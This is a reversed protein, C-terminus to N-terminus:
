GAALLLGSPTPTAGATVALAQYLAAFLLGPRHSIALDVIALATTDCEIRHGDDHLTLVSRALHQRCTPTDVLDLADPMAAVVGDQDKDAIAQRLRELMPPLLRPLPLQLSFDSGPLRLMEDHLEDLEDDTYDALLPAWQKAQTDLFVRALQDPSPGRTVGCCRKTKIGSGCPCPQNRGIKAVVNEM